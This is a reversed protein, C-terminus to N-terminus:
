ANSWGGDISINEGNLYRSKDSLVFSVLEAVEKPDAWRKQPIRSLTWKYLKKKNKKFNEYYSTKIFGPSITNARIGIESMEAAYSKTLATLAGKSSAYGSLENFGLQGVISSINVISGKIKNKQVFSSFIQMMYFISFFNINFVNEIEKKKISSFKKRFRIGANNVLCNISKKNKKSEVFIKTILKKNRVDGNYIKLNQINRFKDNDKKNKILAIVFGGNKSFSHVCSEGLGKGAGTILINKNKLIM